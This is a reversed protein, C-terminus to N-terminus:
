NCSNAIPSSISVVDAKSDVGQIGTKARGSELVM